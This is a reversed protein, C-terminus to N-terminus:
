EARLAVVPDVRSARRAPIWSAVIAAAGLVAVITVYTVPDSPTLDFLLSRLVRTCVLAGGVGIVVGLSVLAIGEGVVLGQVRSRDAGLAIRIGIERTRASVALSMVGYIGIAALSLATLAFLTLLVASFRARATADAARANMTQMDYVPYQPAIERVARRVDAALAVPDRTSRIFIMMRPNATQYYSVYVDPGAASDAHQRVDGVIGIVEADDMNGMTLKVHKGLPDENPWFRDVAAQSVIVVKAAGGRDANTFGRGRKLPVRMTAFWTPSVWHVGTIPARGLEVEAEDRRMIAASSCRGNLPPCNDIAADTVGPLGRLRDLLQPYFATLSDSGPVTLRLTLVNTGDFGINTALLKGLSRIMLGSGALLVLALAVESIVLLQRGTFARRHRGDRADLRGDKLAMAVSARTADLAPALGFVLGVGLAVAFTFGLANWDLGIASFTLAGLGSDRAVRLTTAPNVADLAHILMWAVVVSAAGGLLALLLSETVLLRILRGRGAGIALRVAIERRRVNARGVLLNAVNVCAILLVLGVAAFLVLLSRKIEPAVRVNDLPEARAGWNAKGVPNPYAANVRDGLVTVAAAARTETVGPARRAVLWFEHLQPELDSAARVTIPVFIESQGTLGRFGAPAVGFIDYPLGDLDITRGIASPDANFRRSWLEHSLIAVRAAGPHADEARDFDRGRVPAVGLTRFYTAGVSEGTIRELDGSTVNFQEGVYLSADAFVRQADRFVTFKPYSWVVNNMAPRGNQAPAVLSVKMLENPRAYPLPRVLLTNVASFIATTAGIGVALTAIAVTTFAPRRALGRAAYRVDQMLSELQERLKMRHERQEASQHLQRRADDLTAGLRRLAEPRADTPAMGRAVLADVRNAILSELEADVDAHIAATGRLPLRFLRRVGPRLLFQIM